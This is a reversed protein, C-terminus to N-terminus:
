YVVTLDDNEDYKDVMLEIGSDCNYWALSILAVGIFRYSIEWALRIKSKTPQQQQELAHSVSSHSSDEEVEVEGRGYESDVAAAHERGRGPSSKDTDTTLISSGHKSKADQPTAKLPSPRFFSAVFQFLVMCFVALGVKQHTDDTFHEKGEQSTAVVALIFGSVTFLVNCHQPLLPGQILTRVDYLCVITRGKM